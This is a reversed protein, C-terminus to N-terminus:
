RCFDILFRTVKLEPRMSVHISIFSLWQCVCLSLILILSKFFVPFRPPAYFSSPFRSFLVFLNSTSVKYIDLSSEVFRLYNMYAKEYSGPDGESKYSSLLNTAESEVQQAQVESLQLQDDKLGAERKLINATDQLLIM